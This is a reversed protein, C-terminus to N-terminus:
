SRIPYLSVPHLWIHRHLWSGLEREKKKKTKVGGGGGEGNMIASLKASKRERNYPQYKRAGLFDVLDFSSVFWFFLAFCSIPSRNVICNCMYTFFLTKPPMRRYRSPQIWCLFLWQPPTRWGTRLRVYIFSLKQSVIKRILCLFVTFVALFKSMSTQRISLM